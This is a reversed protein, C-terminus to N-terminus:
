RPISLPLQISSYHLSIHNLFVACHTSLPQAPQRLHVHRHKTPTGWTRGQLELYPPNETVMVVTAKLIHSNQPLYQHTMTWVNFSSLRCLLIRETVLIAIVWSVTWMYWMSVMLPLSRPMHQQVIPILWYLTNQKGELRRRLLVVATCQPAVLHERRALRVDAKRIQAQTYDLHRRVNMRQPDARDGGVAAGRRGSDLEYGWTGHWVSCGGKMVHRSLYFMVHCWMGMSLMGHCELQYCAM